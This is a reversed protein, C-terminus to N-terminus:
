GAPVWATEAAQAIETVQGPQGAVLVLVRRGLEPGGVAPALEEGAGEAFLRVWAVLQERAPTPRRPPAAAGTPRRGSRWSSSSWASASSGATCASPSARRAPTPRWPTPCTAFGHGCARRGRGSAGPEPDPLNGEEAQIFELHLARSGEERMMEDLSPRHDAMWEELREALGDPRM